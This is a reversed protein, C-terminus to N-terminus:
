PQLEKCVEESFIPTKLPLITKHEMYEAPDEKLKRYVKDELLATIEL